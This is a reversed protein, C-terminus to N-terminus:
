LGKPIFDPSYENLSLRVSIEQDADGDLYHHGSAPHHDALAVSLAAFSRALATDLWWHFADSSASAARLGLKDAAPVLLIARGDVAECGGAETLPLPTPMDAFRTLRGAFLRLDDPEGWLLVEPGFAADPLFLHRLM